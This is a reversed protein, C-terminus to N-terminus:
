GACSVWFVFRCTMGREMVCVTPCSIKGASVLVPVLYLFLDALAVASSMGFCFVLYCFSPPQHTGVTNVLLLAPHPPQRAVRDNTTSSRLLAAWCISRATLM